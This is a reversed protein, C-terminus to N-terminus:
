EEGGPESKGLTVERKLTEKGRRFEVEVKDGPKHQRVLPPLDEYKRLETGGFKLVVDGPRIGAKEAGSGPIVEGIRADGSEEIGSVGFFAQTEQSDFNESNALRQWVEAFRDMPVHINYVVPLDCMTGIAVVKGELNFLPAGSDGGMITGDAIVGLRENSLVRGIRVVPPKGRQFDAPYGLTLCWQGPKLNSSTVTEAYPWPGKDIIKVMAADTGHDTGLTVAMARRGDPFVVLVYRGPREAVHAVTLVFGDSSIVVGSGGSVSVVSASVRAVTKQIQGELAKLEAINRPPRTTDSSTRAGQEAAFAIAASHIAAAILLGCVALWCLLRSRAPPFL